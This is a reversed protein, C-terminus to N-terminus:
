QNKWTYRHGHQASALGQAMACNNTCFYQSTYSEGDWANFGTIMGSVNQTASLIYPKNTHRRCDALTRLDAKISVEHHPSWGTLPEVPVHDHRRPIPRKCVICPRTPAKERSM